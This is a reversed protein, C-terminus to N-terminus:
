RTSHTAASGLIVDATVPPVARPAALEAVDVDLAKLVQDEPQEPKAIGEASQLQTAPIAIIEIRKRYNEVQM